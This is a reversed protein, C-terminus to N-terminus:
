EPRLAGFRSWDRLDCWGGPQAHCIFSDNPVPPLLGEAVLSREAPQVPQSHALGVGMALVGLALVLAVAYARWVSSVATAVRMIKEKQTNGRRWLDTSAATRYRPYLPIANNSFRFFPSFSL